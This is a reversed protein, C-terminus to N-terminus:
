LKGEEANVQTIWEVDIETACRVYLQTTFVLEEFLILAPRRSSGRTNRSHLSSTPHLKFVENGCLRRYSGDDNRIAINTTSRGSILCKRLDEYSESMEDAEDGDDRQAGTAQSGKTVTM